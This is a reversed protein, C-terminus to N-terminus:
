RLVYLRNEVAALKLPLALSRGQEDPATRLMAAGALDLCDLLRGDAV